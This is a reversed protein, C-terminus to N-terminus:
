NKRKSPTLSTLKKIINELEEPNEPPSLEDDDDDQYHYSIYKYGNGTYQSFMCFRNKEEIFRIFPIIKIPNGNDFHYLYLDKHNLPIEIQIEHSKFPINNGKLYTVVGTFGPENYIFTSPKVIVSKSFGLELIPLTEWLLAEVETLGKKYKSDNAHGGHTFPHANRIVNMKKLNELVKKDTIMSVWENPPYNLLVNLNDLNKKSERNIIAIFNELFTNWNGFAAHKYFQYHLSPTGFFKEFNEEFYDKNSKFSSLLFVVLLQSLSEFFNQISKYREYYNYQEAEYKWLLSALPFPLVNVYYLIDKPKTVLENLENLESTSTTLNSTRNSIDNAKEQLSTIEKQIGTSSPIFVNMELIDNPLKFIFSHNNLHQNRKNSNVFRGGLNSDLFYSYLYSSLVKTEDFVLQVYFQHGSTVPGVVKEGFVTFTKLMNSYTLFLSNPSSSFENDTPKYIIFDKVLNSLKFTQLDVLQEGFENYENIKKLQKFSFYTNLDWLIGNEFENESQKQCILNELVLQLNNTLNNISALFIKSCESRDLIILEIDAGSFEEEFTNNFSLISNISFGPIVDKKILDIVRKSSYFDSLIFIKGQYNSEIIRSGLENLDNELHDKISTDIGEGGRHRVLQGSSGVGFSSWSNFFDYVFIGDFTNLDTALKEIFKFNGKNTFKLYEPNIGSLVTNIEINEVDNIPSFLEFKYNLLKKLKFFNFIKDLSSIGQTMNIRSNRKRNNIEPILIGSTILKVGIEEGFLNKLSHILYLPFNIKEISNFTNEVIKNKKELLSIETRIRQKDFQLKFLSNEFSPIDNRNWENKSDIKIQSEISNLQNRLESLELNIKSNSSSYSGKIFQLKFSKSDINNDRSNIEPYVIEFIEDNINFNSEFNEMM